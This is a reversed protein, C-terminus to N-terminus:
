EKSESQNDIPIVTTRILITFSTVTDQSGCHIISDSMAYAVLRADKRCTEVLDPDRGEKVLFGAVLEKEKRTLTNSYGCSSLLLSAILFTTVKNM